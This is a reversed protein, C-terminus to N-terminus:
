DEENQFASTPPRADLQHVKLIRFSQTYDLPRSSSRCGYAENGTTFGLQRDCVLLYCGFIPPGFASCLARECRKPLETLLLSFFAKLSLHSGLQNLPPARLPQNM